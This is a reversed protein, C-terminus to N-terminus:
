NPIAAASLHLSATTAALVPHSESGDRYALRTYRRTPLPTLTVTAPPTSVALSPVIAVGAGAAVLALVTAFDDTHHRIRPVFGAAACARLTATHCLTGPTAAIWPTNRLAAVPNTTAFEAAARDDGFALSMRAGGTTALYVTETHLPETRIAPDDVTPILDYDHTLAVDVAGARVAEVVDAPDIELVRVEIGPHEACLRALAPAVLTPLATQFAGIRVVGLLETRARALEAEARELAVLVAETHDVLLRGAATLEVRRGTRSLLAVGAERELASLQQSVASPTYTLADAVAAITGRHALERLLRLKRVDLM